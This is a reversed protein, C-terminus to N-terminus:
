NNTQKYEILNVFLRFAGPVAAPLQRFFSLGTFIFTGKGYDCVLTSGECAEEGPDNMSFISDYNESWEDAFYLGREQVWDKFDAQSIKNPQKLIKHDSIFRVEAEEKTVRLRSLQFPYPGLEETLLNMSTNYQVILNGGMNVYDLLKRRLAVLDVKTNYARIGILVSEYTHLNKTSLENAQIVDVQYGIAELNPVVEDGAGPIYAILKKNRKIDIKVLRLQCEQLIVQKEIHSYDIEVVENKFTKNSTQAEFRVLSTSSYEPPAIEFEVLEEEGKSLEYSYSKPYIRWGDELFPILEGKQEDAYAHLAIQIKKKKENSFLVNQNLSGVSLEPLIDLNRYQEGDAKDELKYKVPLKIKLLLENESSGVKFTLFVHQDTAQEPLNRLMPDHVNYLNSYNEELWFPISYNQNQPIRYNIPFVRKQNNIEKSLVSDKSNYYVSILDLKLPSRQLVEIDVVVRDGPHAYPVQALAECWLGACAAIINELRQKQFKVISRKNSIQSISNHLEILANISSSPNSFDFNTLILEVFRNIKKGGKISNWSQDIGEFLDKNVKSGGVYKLYEIHKGRQLITGFGQCRHQSRSKSAITNYSEGLLPNFGGVDITIYRDSKEAIEELNPIFWPSSNHLIRQCRWPDVFELQSPFRSKDAAALFAEEALIASAEHQGHGAKRSPPFRTIIIDPQFKRIAFVVDELLKEKDWKEFSEEASKSYGFDVARTFFQEGGDIKRAQLLEQTRLVGLSAGKENGILNQGGDGRTLSLYATRVKAENALWSILRTNEDDPHAAIYLVSTTNKLKEIEHYIRSSNWEPIQALFSNTTLLLLVVLYKMWPANM